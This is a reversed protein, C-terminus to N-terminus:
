QKPPLPQFQTGTIVRTIVALETTSPRIYRQYMMSSWQGLIKIVNEPVGAQSASTAAGIRFSYGNFYQGIAGSKQLAQQVGHVFQKKRLPLLDQKIFLAGPKNGQVTFYDLLASVPCLQAGTFGLVVKTGQRFQDAKSAKIVIEIHNHDTDNVYAIDSICLHVQPDVPGVDPTMFESCQRFGFFGM